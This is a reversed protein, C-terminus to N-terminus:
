LAYYTGTAKELLSMLNEEGVREFEEGCYIPVISPLFENEYRKIIEYESKFVEESVFVVSFNDSQLIQKLEEKVKRDDKLIKVYCGLCSFVSFYECKGVFAVNYM